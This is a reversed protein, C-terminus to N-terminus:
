LIIQWDPLQYKNRIYKREIPRDTLDWKNVVRSFIISKVMQLDKCEPFKTELSKSISRAHLATLEANSLIYLFEELNSSKRLQHYNKSSPLTFTQLDRKYEDPIFDLLKLCNEEKAYNYLTPYAEAHFASKESESVSKIYILDVDAVESIQTKLNYEYVSVDLDDFVLIFDFNELMTLTYRDVIHMVIDILTDFKPILFTTHKLIISQIPIKVSHRDYKGNSRYYKYLSLFDFTYIREGEKFVALNKPKINEYTIMDVLKNNKIYERKDVEFTTRFNLDRLYKSFKQDKLGDVYNLIEPIQTKPVKKLYAKFLQLSKCEAIPKWNTLLKLEQLYELIGYLKYKVINKSFKPLHTYDPLNNLVIKLLEVNDTVVFIIDFSHLEGGNNLYKQLEIINGTQIFDVYQDMSVFNVLFEFVNM